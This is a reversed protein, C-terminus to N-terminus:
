TGKLVLLVWSSAPASPDGMLAYYDNGGITVVSRHVLGSSINQGFAFVGKAIGRYGFPHNAGRVTTAIYPCMIGLVIPLVQRGDPNYSDQYTAGEGFGFVGSNSVGGAGGGTQSTFSALMAAADHWITHSPAYNAAATPTQGKHSRPTMWCGYLSSTILQNFAASSSTSSVLHGYNVGLNGEAASRQISSLCVVTLVGNFVNPAGVVDSAVCFYDGNDEADIYFNGGLVLDIKHFRTATNTTASQAIDILNLRNTSTGPSGPTHSYVPCFTIYEVASITAGEVRLIMRSLPEAPNNNQVIFFSSGAISDEVSTFGCNNILETRLANLVDARTALAAYTVTKSKASM